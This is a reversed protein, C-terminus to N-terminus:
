RSPPCGPPGGWGHSTAPPQQSGAHGGWCVAGGSHPGVDGPSTGLPSVPGSIAGFQQSPGGRPKWQVFVVMPTDGRDGRLSTPPSACGLGAFGGDGGLLEEVKAQESQARIVGPHLPRELCKCRGPGGLVGRAGWSLAAAPAPAPAAGLPCFSGLPSPLLSPVEARRPPGPSSVGARGPECPCPPM